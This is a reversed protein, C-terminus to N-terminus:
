RPCDDHRLEGTDVDRSGFKLTVTDVGNDTASIIPQGIDGAGVDNITPFWGALLVKEAGTAPVGWRALEGQTPYPATGVDFPGSAGTSLVHWRSDTANYVVIATSEDAVNVSAGTPTTIRNAAISGAAEHALTVAGGKAVLFLVRGPTGSAFGNVTPAAGTFTIGSAPTGTVTTVVDNLTGTSANVIPEALTSGGAGFTIDTREFTPNDAVTGGIFNITARRTVVPAGDDQLDLPGILNPLWSSIDRQSM